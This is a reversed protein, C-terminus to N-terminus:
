STSSLHELEDATVEGAFDPFTADFRNVFEQKTYEHEQPGHHEIAYTAALSAMRGVVPLDKGLLLGAVLGARYADGGGTPDVFPEPPAIPIRVSEGGVFIESGNGAYTVITMPAKRATDQVTLGTKNQIMGHEYDSGIVIEALDIGRSLQHGDLIVIQQAPDFILKSVAAIQESHLMMALPDNASVIGYTATRSVDTVDISQTLASPGPFFSAIQNGDRDANMYATATLTDDVQTVYSLDVGLGSLVDRYPGFDPGVAGVLAVPVGLLALSYAMNGGIGGRNQKVSDLLFSVSIVHAKDTLIHDKFSGGFQQIHDFAISASVVVSPHHAVRTPRRDTVIPAAGLKDPQCDITSGCM